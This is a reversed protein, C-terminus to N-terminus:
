RVRAPNSKKAMESARYQSPTMGAIKHFLRSFKFQNSVGVMTAVQSIPHKSTALVRRAKEIRYRSLYQMPSMGTERRFLRSFHYMSLGSVSHLRKLDLPADYFRAIYRISDRVPISVLNKGRHLHVLDIDLEGEEERSAFLEALLLAILGSAKAEFGVPKRHTVRLLELFRAQFRRADLVAFVPNHDAALEAYLNSMDKHNFCLWWVHAPKSRDNGYRVPERLDMLCVQGKGLRHTKGAMSHWFQGRHLYHLVFRDEPGHEHQHGPPAKTRGISILHFFLNQARISPNHYYEEGLEVKGGLWYREPVVPLKKKVPM